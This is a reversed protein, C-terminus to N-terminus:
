QQDALFISIQGSNKFFKLVRETKAAGCQTTKTKVYAYKFENFKM